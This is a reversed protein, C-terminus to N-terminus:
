TLYINETKRYPFLFIKHSIFIKSIDRACFAIWILTQEDRKVLLFPSIFNDSTNYIEQNKFVDNSDNLQLLRFKKGSTM